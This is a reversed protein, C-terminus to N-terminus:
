LLSTICGILYQLVLQIVSILDLDSDKIIKFVNYCCKCLRFVFLLHLNIIRKTNLSIVSSDTIDFLFALDVTVLWHLEAAEWINNENIRSYQNQGKLSHVSHNSGNEECEFLM